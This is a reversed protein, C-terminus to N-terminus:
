LMIGFLPYRNESLTMSWRFLAMGGHGCNREILEIRGVRRAEDGREAIDVFM